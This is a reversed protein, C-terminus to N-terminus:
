LHEYLEYSRELACENIFSHSAWGLHRWAQRNTLLFLLFFSFVGDITSLGELRQGKYSRSAFIGLSYWNGGIGICHGGHGM